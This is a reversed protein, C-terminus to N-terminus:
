CAHTRMCDMQRCMVADHPLLFGPPSGCQHVRLTVVCVSQLGIADLYTGGWMAHMCGSTDYQSAFAPQLGHTLGGRGGGPAACTGPAGQLGHLRMDVCVM